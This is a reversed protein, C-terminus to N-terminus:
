RAGGATPGSQEELLRRRALTYPEGTEAMRARVARKFARGRGTPAASSDDAPTAPAQFAPSTPGSPRDVASM